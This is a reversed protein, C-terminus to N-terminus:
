GAGRFRLRLHHIGPKLRYAPLVDPGCAATGLGRQGRDLDLVISSSRELENTHTARTLAEATYHSASFEFLDARPDAAEIRLGRGEGDTLAVWRTEFHNGHEQPLIYPVYEDEVTSRHRGIRAGVFRDNYSEHPGRGYWEIRELSPALALTVGLRPWDALPKPVRFRAEFDLCGPEILRYVQRLEVGASSSQDVRISVGGDRSRSGRVATKTIQLRDLGQRRWRKLHESEGGVPNHSDNDTPARWLRLRPGAVLPEVDGGKARLALHGLGGTARDVEVRVGEGEAEVRTDSSELRFGSRAKPRRKAAARRATPLQAWAVEHGQECWSQDAAAEFRVSLWAEQGPQLAVDRLPLDVDEELGPGTHLKPLRGRQVVKGDVEVEFRGRLWSLNEFHQRNEVRIRGQRANRATVRVPQQLKKCEYMAPHPTRDPWILGNICFNRDNPEDGFDGGYAWYRVGRADQQLLGQDVWDWIFGGQLGHWTEIADWYDHLSGNSNGMAHSYECMILPRDGHGSKAWAVIADITPYMPCIIDTTSHDRYWNWDLGGEYHLPRTPDARRIWAALPEFGIGAGAENGLSWLIISPHNKDREVMRQGRALIAPGWKPDDSLSRLHAHSEVNAEDIVYLGYEDCLDYWESQNPYHATRVANFNFQKMLRIDAIMSDRTVAKGRRDDHEHRNVGKIVVPEGNVLLERERVEVRRFGIRQCTAERLEGDPDRLSVLARYLSPNEASWRRPRPVAEHFDVRHGRFLYANPVTPVEGSLPRRFVPRDRDDFLQLEVRWGPRAPDAFGVEIRADLRGTELDDELAGDLKMDALWTPATSYCYVSRYLGGMFWHDQDELYTADSWRVVMAALLNEGSPDLQPTLDFEAPLRSDKSMGLLTGNLWVLLVSEAGGVHLVVRRDCWGEPVRFRRRYLGTPNAEPVRPPPGAFPMQVNTYHPHDWGEMTWNSPVPITAWRTDDFAPDAFDVPVNEPRDMLAFRWPGDLSLHFPSAGRDGHLASEVDPFPITPSRSPLRGWGVLEPREWSRLPDVLDMRAGPNADDAISAAVRTCGLADCSAQFSVGHMRVVCGPDLM